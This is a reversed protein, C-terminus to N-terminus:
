ARYTPYWYLSRMCNYPFGKLSKAHIFYTKDYELPMHYAYKDIILYQLRKYYRNRLQTDTEAITKALLSNIEHNNIRALNDDSAPNVLPEIREFTDFYVPGWGLYYLHLREPHLQELKIFDDWLLSQYAIDIGILDMDETFRDILLEMFHSGPRYRFNWQNNSFNGVDPIFQASAWLAEDAGQTFQIGNMIGVEWGVGHGMKQIYQRAKPIDYNAAKVSRNHAPFGPPVLSNARVTTGEDIEENLYTYNFAHSIAKRWTQNIYPSNFAIYWYISGNIYEHVGDGTITINPGPEV